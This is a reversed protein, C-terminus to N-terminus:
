QMLLTELYSALRPGNKKRFEPYEVALEADLLHIFIAEDLFGARDAGSMMSWVSPTEAPSSAETQRAVELASRVAAREVALASTSGAHSARASAMASRYAIWSAREFNPPQANRGGYVRNWKRGMAAAYMHLASW